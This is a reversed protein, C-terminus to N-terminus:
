VAHPFLLTRAVALREERGAQSARPLPLDRRALQVLLDGFTIGGLARRLEAVSIRGQSYRQLLDFTETETMVGEIERM